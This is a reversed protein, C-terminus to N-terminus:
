QQNAVLAERSRAVSAAIKARPSLNQFDRQDKVEMPKRVQAHASDGGGQLFPNGNTVPNKERYEAVARDSVEKDHAAQAAASKRSEEGAFDFKHAGYEYLSKGAAHAEAALADIDVPLPKGFLALHRNNLNMSQAIVNSVSGRFKDPDFAPKGGNAAPTAVAPVTKLTPIEVNIGQSKINDVVAKYAALNAELAVRTDESAGYQAIYSDIQEQEEKVKRLNNEAQQQLETASRYKADADTLYGNWKTVAEPKLTGLDIGLETALEQVTPM